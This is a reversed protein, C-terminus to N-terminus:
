GEKKARLATLTNEWSDMIRCCYAYDVVLGGENIARALAAYELHLTRAAAENDAELRQERVFARLSAVLRDWIEYPELWNTGVQNELWERCAKEVPDPEQIMGSLRAESRELSQHVDVRREDDTMAM